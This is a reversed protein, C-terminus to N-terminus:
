TLRIHLRSGDTDVFKVNGRMMADLIDQATGEIYVDLGKADTLQYM